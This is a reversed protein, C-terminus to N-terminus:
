PNAKDTQRCGNPGADDGGHQEVTRALFEACAFVVLNVASEPQHNPNEEETDDVDGRLYQALEFEDGHEFASLWVARVSFCVYNTNSM